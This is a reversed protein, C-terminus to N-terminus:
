VSENNTALLTPNEISPEEASESEAFLAGQFLCLTSVIIVPCIWRLFCYM